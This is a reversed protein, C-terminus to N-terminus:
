SWTVTTTIQGNTTNITTTTTRTGSSLTLVTTVIRQSTNTTVTTTEVAGNPYTTTVTGDSIVTTGNWNSTDVNRQLYTDLDTTAANGFYGDYNVIQAETQPYLQDYGTETKVNIEVNQTAM